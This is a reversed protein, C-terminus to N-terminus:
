KSTVAKLRKLLVIIKLHKHKTIISQFNKLAEESIWAEAPSGGLAANILGIPINYKANIEKAFFYAVGSFEGINKTYGAVM